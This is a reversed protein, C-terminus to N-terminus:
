RRAPMRASMLTEDLSFSFLHTHEVRGAGAAKGAVYLTVKGGKGIGGGDSSIL